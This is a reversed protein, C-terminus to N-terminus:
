ELERDPCGHNRYECPLKFGYYIRSHEKRCFPVDICGDSDTILLWTCAGCRLEREEMRSLRIGRLRNYLRKWFIMKM